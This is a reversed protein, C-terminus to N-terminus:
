RERGGSSSSRPLESCALRIGARSLPEFAGRDILEIGRDDVVVLDSEGAGVVGRITAPPLDPDVRFGVPVLLDTGWYRVSEALHPLRGPEGLVFVEPEGEDRCNEQRWAGRLRSLALSTAEEAWAAIAAVSSRLATALRVQQREDAVVGVPLPTALENPARQASLKGPILLRDLGVGDDGKGFPV